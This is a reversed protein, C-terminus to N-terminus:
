ARPLSSSAADLAQLMGQISSLLHQNHLRGGWEKLTQSAVQMFRDMQTRWEEGQEPLLSSQRLKTVLDCVRHVTRGVADVLLRERTGSIAYISEHRYFVLLEEMLAEAHSLATQTNIWQRHPLQEGADLMRICDDCDKRVIFLGERLNHLFEEFALRHVQELVIEQRQSALKSVFIAFVILAIVSQAAAFVKSLGQPTIDGFGTSAGTIISFYLANWFRAWAPMDVIQGPGNGPFYSLAMYALGFALMLSIWITFLQTYSMEVLAMVPRALLPRHRVM